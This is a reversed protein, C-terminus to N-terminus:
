TPVGYDQKNATPQKIQADKINPKKLVKIENRLKIIEFQQITSRGRELLKRNEIKLAENSQKLSTNEETAKILNNLAFSIVEDRSYQRKLKILVNDNTM